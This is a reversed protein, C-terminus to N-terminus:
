APRTVSDDMVHAPDGQPWYADCKRCRYYLDEDWRVFYIVSGLVFAAFVFSVAAGIMALEMLFPDIVLRAAILCFIGFLLVVVGAVLSYPIRWAGITTAGKADRRRKEAVVQTSGCRPCQVNEM